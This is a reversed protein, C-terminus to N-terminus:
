KPIWGYRISLLDWFSQNNLIYGEQKFPLTTLWSSAGTKVNSDIQNREESSM